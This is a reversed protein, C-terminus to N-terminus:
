TTLGEVLEFPVTVRQAVADRLVLDAGIEGIQVRPTFLTSLRKPAVQGIDLGNYGLLALRGPVDVGVAACHFYGGMAMDDNSFYVADLDPCRGLLVELAQKGSALSSPATTIEADAVSLCHAVLHERFGAFRKAARLDSALDHGVYGIRRYGRAVLHDASVAGADRNSFGVVSDIGEGDTDLLEVVRTGANALLSRARPTHELGALIVAAPRWALLSAILREERGLDYDTVGVLAQHRAHELRGNIGRLVDTFVTNALSPVIVGVIRSQASALAGAMPNLVYGLSEAASLVRERTRASFSGSDRLVRSATSEGVGALRAVDYLTIVQNKDEQQTM